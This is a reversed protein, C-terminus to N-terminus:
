GHDFMVHLWNHAKADGDNALEDAISTLARTVNSHKAVEMIPLGQSISSLVLENDSPITKYIKIGLAREIDGLSIKSFKEDQNIILSMKARSIGLAQYAELLRKSNRISPLTEKTVLFIMDAHKLAKITTDTLPPGMDMLVYDYLTKSLSLLTDIANAQVDLSRKFSDPSALVSFNPLVKVMSTKLLSEDLRAVNGVIDALTNSPEHDSISQIADGFQLDLDLLALNIDKNKALIYSINTALFTVGCGGKPSVFAIVKGQLTNTNAPKLRQEIRDIVKQLDSLVLPLQLVDEVGCHMATMLFESKSLSNECLIILAIDRHHLGFQELVELQNKNKSIEDMIIVDPHERNAITSLNNFTNEILKVERSDSSQIGLQITEKLAQNMSILLIKM